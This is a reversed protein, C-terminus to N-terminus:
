SSKSNITSQWAVCKTNLAERKVISVTVGAM